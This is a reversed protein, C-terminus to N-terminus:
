NNDGKGPFMGEMFEDFNEDDKVEGREDGELKSM